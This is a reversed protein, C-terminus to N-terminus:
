PSPGTPEGLDLDEISNTVVHRTQAATRSQRQGILRERITMLTLWSHRGLPLLRIM